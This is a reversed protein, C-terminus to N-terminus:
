RRSRSVILEQIQQELQLGEKRLKSVRSRTQDVYPKDDLADLNILVNGAAGEIAARAGAVSTTVDSLANTARCKAVEDSLRLVGISSDLTRFCKEGARMKKR